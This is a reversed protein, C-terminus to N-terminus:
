RVAATLWLPLRDPNRARLLLISTTDADQTTGNDLEYILWSGGSQPRFWLVRADAAIEPSLAAGPDEADPNAPKNQEWTFKRYLFVRQGDAYRVALATCAQDHPEFCEVLAVQKGGCTITNDPAARASCGRFDSRAHTLRAACAPLLFVLLIMWRKM